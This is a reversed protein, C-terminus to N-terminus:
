LCNIYGKKTRYSTVQDHNIESDRVLIYEIAGRKLDKIVNLLMWYESPVYSGAIALFGKDKCEDQTFNHIPDKLTVFKRSTIM